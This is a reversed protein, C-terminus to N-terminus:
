DRVVFHLVASPAPGPRGGLMIRPIYATVSQVGARAGRVGLGEPTVIGEAGIRIEYMPLPGLPEGTSDVMTLPLSGSALVEGVRLHVTDSTARLQVARPANEIARQARAVNDAGVAVSESTTDVRVVRRTSEVPEGTGPRAPACRATMLALLVLGARRM